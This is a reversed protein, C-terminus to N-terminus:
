QVVNRIARTGCGGQIGRQGLPLHSNTALCCPSNYPVHLMLRWEQYEASERMTKVVQFLTKNFDLAEPQITLSPESHKKFV